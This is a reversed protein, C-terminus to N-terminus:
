GNTEYGYRALDGESAVSVNNIKLHSSDYYRNSIMLYDINFSHINDETPSM